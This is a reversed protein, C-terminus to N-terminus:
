MSKSGSIIEHLSLPWALSAQSREELAQQLGEERGPCRAAAARQGLGCCPCSGGPCAGGPFPPPTLCSASTLLPPCAAPSSLYCGRKPHISIKRSTNQSGEGCVYVACQAGAPREQRTGETRTYGEPNDEWHSQIDELSFLQVLLLGLVLTDPSVYIALDM